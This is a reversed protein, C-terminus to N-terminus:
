LISGVQDAWYRSKEEEVDSSDEEKTEGSAKPEEVPFDLNLPSLPVGMRLFFLVRYNLNEFPVSTNPSPSMEETATDSFLSRVCSAISRLM